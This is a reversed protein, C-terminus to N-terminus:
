IGDNAGGDPGGGGEARECELLGTRLGVHWALLIESTRSALLRRRLGGAARLRHLAVPLHDQFDM